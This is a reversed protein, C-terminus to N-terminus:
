LAKVNEVQTILVRCAAGPVGQQERDRVCDCHWFHQQWSVGRKQGAFMENCDNLAKM